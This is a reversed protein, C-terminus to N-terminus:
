VNGMQGRRSNVSEQSDGGEIILLGMGLEPRKELSMERKM